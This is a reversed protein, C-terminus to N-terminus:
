ETVAPVAVVVRWAEGERVLPVSAHQTAPDPGFVEVTARDGDITTTTRVVDFRIPTWSPVLMQEPGVAKGTIATARRAREELASRTSPALLAYVQAAASPDHGATASARLLEQVAGEPTADPRSRCSSALLLAAILLARVRRM